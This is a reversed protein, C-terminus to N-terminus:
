SYTFQSTRVVRELKLKPVREADYFALRSADTYLASARATYSRLARSPVYTYKLGFLIAKPSMVIYKRADYSRALVEQAFSCLSSDLKGIGFDGLFVDRRAARFCRGSSQAAKVPSIVYRCQPLCRCNINGGRSRTNM